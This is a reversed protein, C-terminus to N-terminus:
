ARTVFWTRTLSSSVLDGLIAVSQAKHLAQAEHSFNSALM